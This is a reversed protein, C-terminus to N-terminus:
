YIVIATYGLYGWKGILSSPSYSRRGRWPDNTTVSVPAEPTGVFGVIVESHMGKYGTFGGELTFAGMPTSYGNYVYLLVPHGAKVEQLASTLNWGTKISNSVGRSSIYSSLPGSHVGYGNIWKSNPNQPEGEIAVGIYNKMDQESSSIGKYALVMRAAALNCTFSESQYYLPVSLLVTEPKTTFSTSIVSNSDYGYLSKVGVPLSITYKTGATLNSALSYYVTNGKWSFTGGINPSIQWNQQVSEKNVPQNFTLSITKTSISIDKAGNWPSSSIHKLYGPTTFVINTDNEIYGGLINKVGKLITFTYETNKSFEGSPQFILQTLDESVSTTGEIAPTISTKEIISTKDLPSEFTIILPDKNSLFVGDRNFSVIGPAPITKFNFQGVLEHTEQSIKKNTQTDYRIINRYVMLTYETGQKLNTPTISVKDSNDREVSYETEPIFTVEWEVFRQDKSDLELLIEEDIRVNNIDAGLVVEEISPSGPTFFEQSNEQHKGNPFIRSLGTTYVVIKQEPLFSEKPSITFGTVWQNLFLFTDYQIDIDSEPSLHVKLNSKNIPINFAIEINSSENLIGVENAGKSIVKPQQFLSLLLILLFSLFLFGTKILTIRYFKKKLLIVLLLSVTELIVTILYIALLLLNEKYIVETINFTTFLLLLVPLVSYICLLVVHLIFSIRINKRFITFPITFLLVFLVFAIALLRIEYNPLYNNIESIFNNIPM